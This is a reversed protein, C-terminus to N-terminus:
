VHYSKFEEYAHFNFVPESYVHSFSFVHQNLVIYVRVWCEVNILYNLHFVNM